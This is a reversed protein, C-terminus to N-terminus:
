SYLIRYMCLVLGCHYHWPEKVEIIRLGMNKKHELVVPLEHLNEINWLRM